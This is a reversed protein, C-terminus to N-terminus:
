LGLLQKKKADFEEQNIIGSDLLNKYKIIEDTPSSVTQNKDYTESELLCDDLFSIINQSAITSCQIKGAYTILNVKVTQIGGVTKTEEKATNSGVIAGVGGFLAGGVVARSIGGKKKTITKQGVMEIQYNDIEDFRFFISPVKGKSLNGFVFLKHNSDVTITGGSFSTLLQTQTFLKKRENNIEWFEKLTAITKTEHSSCILSCNFCIEGDSAKTKLLVGIKEDCIPCIKAM